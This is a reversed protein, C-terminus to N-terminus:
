FHKPPPPVLPVQGINQGPPPIHKPPPPPVLPVQGINQGPPPFNQPPPPVLPVQGINQGPPPFHQPTPPNFPVQGINQGPPPFHQPPTPPILPVQGINQGPPTYPQQHYYYQNGNMNPQPPNIPVQGTNYEFYENCCPQQLSPSPGYDPYNDYNRPNYNPPPQIPSPGCPKSNTNCPSQEPQWSNINPNNKSQGQGYNNPNNPIYPRTIVLPFKDEFNGLNQYDNSPSPLWPNPHNGKVQGPNAPHPPVRNGYNEYNPPGDFYTPSHGKVGNNIPYNESPFHAQVKLSLRCLIISILILKM